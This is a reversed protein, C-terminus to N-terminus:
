SDSYVFVVLTRWKVDFNDLVRNSQGEHVGESGEGNGKRQKEGKWSGTESRFIM